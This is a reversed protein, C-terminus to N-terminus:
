AAFGPRFGGGVWERGCRSDSKELSSLPGLRKLVMFAGPGYSLGLPHRKMGPFLAM